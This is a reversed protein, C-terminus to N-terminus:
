LTIERIHGTIVGAGTHVATLRARLTIKVAAKIDWLFPQGFSVLNQSGIM